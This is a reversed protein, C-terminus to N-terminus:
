YKKKRSEARRKAEAQEEKEFEVYEESIANKSAQMEKDIFDSLSESIIRKLKIELILQVRTWLYLIKLNIWDLIIKLRLYRLIM